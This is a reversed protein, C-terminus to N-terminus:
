RYTHNRSNSNIFRKNIQKVRKHEGYDSVEFYDNTCEHNICLAFRGNHFLRPTSKTCVPCVVSNTVDKRYTKMIM